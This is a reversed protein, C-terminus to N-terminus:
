ELTALAAQRAALTQQWDTQGLWGIPTTGVPLSEVTFLLNISLLHLQAAEKKTEDSLSVDAVLKNCAEYAVLQEAALTKDADTPTIPGVASGFTTQIGGRRPQFRSSM